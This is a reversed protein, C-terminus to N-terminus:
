TGLRPRRLRFRKYGKRLKEGVRANEDEIAEDVSSHRWIKKQLSNVPALERNRVMAAGWWVTVTRSDRQIKWMKCSVGSLNKANNGFFAYIKM